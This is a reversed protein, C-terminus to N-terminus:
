FCFGENAKEQDDSAVLWYKANGCNEFKDEFFANPAGHAM